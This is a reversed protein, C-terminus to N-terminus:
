KDNNYWVQPNFDITKKNMALVAGICSGPDGPNPPVYVSNWTERLQDMADRNLACGGTVILDRNPLNETCWKASSKVIMEFVSQTANALRKMDDETTLDPRYWQCGKHLNHKFKVGPKSGDLPGDIFTEVLDNILLLNETIAIDRGAESIKYEEANPKFGCRMTMASYFLGISHPYSQSYVKKLKRNNNGSWITFCEFEGISDLCMVTARPNHQTYYGYAAHSHHHKMYKVPCYIGLDALYKDINNEKLCSFLSGQGAMWQRFSKSWPNEYWVVLDPKGYSQIATQIQIPSHKPDNPVDSFKNATSAWVLVGDKFVALSADHSNGVMGWIVM